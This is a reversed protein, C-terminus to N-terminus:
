LGSQPYRPCRCVAAGGTRRATSRWVDADRAAARLGISRSHWSTANLGATKTLVVVANGFKSVVPKESRLDHCGDIRGRALEGVGGRRLVAARRVVDLGLLRQEAGDQDVVLREVPNGVKELRRMEVLRQVLLDVLEGRVQDAGALDRRRDRELGEQRGVDVDAPEVDALIERAERGLRRRHDVGRIVAAGDVVQRQAAIQDADALVHDVDRELRRDVERRALLDLVGLAPEVFEGLGVAVARAELAERLREGGRDVHRRAGELAVALQRAERGAQLIEVGLHAAQLRGVQDDDGAAGAHALGREGGVDGVVDRVGIAALHLGVAAHAVTLPPM